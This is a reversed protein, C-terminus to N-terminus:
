APRAGADDDRRGRYLTCVGFTLPKSALDAFGADRMQQRMAEPELFTSISRPLYRYAGSRDRAILTATVPMVHRGYLRNGFRVLPNRPESFELVVLRGGPRLVRRFERLAAAPDEVNRIGFAISVVDFSADAHPLAMADGQVYEISADAGRREAKFRAIDLMAPTFDLGVVRRAGADAFAQALDGTGCAVDLVEDAPRLEAMRVAARRWAQDRGFSHIRNNLDYSRAIASFMRRVRDSKDPADHPNGSLDESSWALEPSSPPTSQTMHHM